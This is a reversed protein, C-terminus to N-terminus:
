THTHTHTHTHTDTVSWYQILVASRLIVCIVGFSLGTVRTKQCWLERRFVFPIVGVPAVFVPPTPLFEGSKIITKILTSYSTMHARDFPSTESSRPHDRVGLGGRNKYKEDGKTDEYHTFM